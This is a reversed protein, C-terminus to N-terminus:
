TCEQSPRMVAYGYNHTFADTRNSEAWVEVCAGVPIDGPFAVRVMRRDARNTQIEYIHHAPRQGQRANYTPVFVLVGGGIAVPIVAGGGPAAGSDAKIFQRDVVRGVAVKTDLTEIPPSYPPAACGGLLIAAPLLSALCTFKM